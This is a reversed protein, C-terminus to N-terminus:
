ASALTDRVASIDADTFIWARVEATAMPEIEIGAHANISDAIMELADAGSSGVLPMWAADVGEVQMVACLAADVGIRWPKRPRRQGPFAQTYRSAGEITLAPAHGLATPVAELLATIADFPSM